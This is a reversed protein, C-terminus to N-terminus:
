SGPQKLTERENALRRRLEDISRPSDVNWHLMAHCNPCVPRLDEAPDIEYEGPHSAVGSQHHVHMFGTGLGGYREPFAMGCSSCQCGHIQLCKERAEKSRQRSMVLRAFSKGEAFLPNWTPLDFDHLPPCELVANNKLNQVWIREGSWEIVFRQDILSGYGPVPQLDYLYHPVSGWPWPVNKPLEDFPVLKNGLVRYVGWFLARGGGDGIFSVLFDVKHFVPRSQWRQYEEFRGTHLLAEFDVQPRTDKHRAMCAKCQRDFGFASLVELLGM